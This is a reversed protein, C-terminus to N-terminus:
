APGTPKLAARARAEANRLDSSLLHDPKVARDAAGGLEIAAQLLAARMAQYGRVAAGIARAHAHDVPFEAEPFLAIETEMRTVATELIIPDPATTM